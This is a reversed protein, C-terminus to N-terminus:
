AYIEKNRELKKRESKGFKEPSKGSVKSHFSELNRSVERSVEPFQRSTKLWTIHGQGQDKGTRLSQDELGQGWAWTRPRSAWTRPRPRAKFGLDKAKIKFSLDKAKAKAKFGLDKAKAKFGLDKNVDSNDVIYWNWRCSQEAVPTTFTSESTGKSGLQNLKYRSCLQFTLKPHSQFRPGGSGWGSASVEAGDLCSKSLFCILM